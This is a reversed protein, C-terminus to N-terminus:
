GELATYRKVQVSASDVLALMAQMEPGQMRAPGPESGWLAVVLWEGGDGRAATRRILAPQTLMLEAQVRADAALFAAEDAEALLRFTINEILM